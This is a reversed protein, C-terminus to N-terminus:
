ATRGGARAAVSASGAREVGAVGSADDGHGADPAAGADDVDTGERGGRSPLGPATDDPRRGVGDGAPRAAPAPAEAGGEVASSQGADVRGEPGSDGDPGEPGADGARRACVVWGLPGDAVRRVVWTLLALTAPAPLLAVATGLALAGVVDTPYHVAAYVRFLGELLALAIGLLGFRRRVMFLGVGLAMLASTHGSVFSYGGVDDLLVDLGEHSDAPRQRAVFQRIPVNLAAALGAALVAWVVGAVGTVADDRGRRARAGCWAAALLVVALVPLGYEGLLVVLRDVWEPSRQALRNVDVLLGVDPNEWEAMQWPGETVM